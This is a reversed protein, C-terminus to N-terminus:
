NGDDQEKLRRLLDNIEMQALELGRVVGCLSQYEAFDKASGNRLSESITFVRDQLKKILLELIQKEQSM